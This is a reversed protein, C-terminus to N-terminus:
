FRPVGLARYMEIEAQILLTEIRQSLTDQTAIAPCNSNSAWDGGGAKIVEEVFAVCNNPLVLWTWTNAMLGELYILAAQPQPLYVPVRRWETKGEEKLYRQYGSENMYHPLEKVGAVHFYYGGQKSGVRLLAHGCPTIGSVAVVDVRSCDIELLGCQDLIEGNYAM